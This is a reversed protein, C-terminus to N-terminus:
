VESDSIVTLDVYRKPVRLNLLAKTPNISFDMERIPLPKYAFYFKFNNPFWSINELDECISPIVICIKNEVNKQKESFFFFTKSIRLDFLELDKEFVDLTAFMMQNNFEIRTKRPLYKGDLLHVLINLKKFNM